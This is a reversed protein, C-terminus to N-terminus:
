RTGGRRESSPGVADPISFPDSAGLRGLIENREREGVGRAVLAESLFSAFSTSAPEDFNLRTRIQIWESDGVSCPGDALDCLEDAMLKRAKALDSPKEALPKLKEAMVADALALRFWDDVTKTLADRGGMREFLKKENIVKPQKARRRRRRRAEASDVSLVSTVLSVLTLVVVLRFSFHPRQMSGM